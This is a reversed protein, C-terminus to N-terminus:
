VDSSRKDDMCREDSICRNCRTIGTIVIEECTMCKDIKSMKMLEMNVAISANM